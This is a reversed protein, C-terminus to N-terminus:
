GRFISLILCEVKMYDWCLHFLLGVRNGGYSGIVAFFVAFAIVRRTIGAQSGIVKVSRRHASRSTDADFQSWAQVDSVDDACPIIDRLRKRTEPNSHM